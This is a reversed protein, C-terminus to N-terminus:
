KELGRAKIFRSIQEKCTKENYHDWAEYMSIFEQSCDVMARIDVEGDALWALFQPVKGQPAPLLSSGNASPTDKLFQVTNALAAASNAQQLGQNPKLVMSFLIATMAIVHPPFLLPIDTVYQDNILSWATQVEDQAMGLTNQVDLLTRYPHHVILQCNM